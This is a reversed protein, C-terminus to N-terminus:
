CRILDSPIQSAQGFVARIQESLERKIKGLEFEMKLYVININELIRSQKLNIKQFENLMENEIASLQERSLSFENQIM